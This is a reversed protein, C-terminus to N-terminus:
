EELPVLTTPAGADAAADRFRKVLLREGLPTERLVRVVRPAARGDGFPNLVKSLGQRYGPATARRIGDLVSARDYGVDIINPARPRGQQRTGINVVPLRFSPAEVIGSSSNGVMATAGEMATLYAAAGFNPVLWARGENAAVYSRIQSAIARGGADANPLTFTAPLECASLAALLEDSQHAADGSEPSTAHFTVLLYPRTAPFGFRTELASRDPRAMGRVNDLSLAGVVSVRWPEEGLQVVRRAYEATSVFHLHALKTISHRLSDDLAGITLEGGNLHAVPIRFPLAAVAAAHTEFRDGLLVLVDPRERAFAQAFGITGIGMSTAVGSPADSSLLMEVREAIAFGDAEIESETRGFEPSLHAGSVFLRLRLTPDAEIARLLPVLLGYDSRGVTVVGVTRM